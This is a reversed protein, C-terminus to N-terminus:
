CYDGNCWSWSVAFQVKILTLSIAITVMVARGLFLLCCQNTLPIAITVMVGRGLFVLSCQNTLPIAITVMVGRGLFVLSCQNTLPITITVMVGRGLFLLSCQNTLPIAITAMVGRYSLTANCVVCSCHVKENFSIRTKVLCDYLLIFLSCYTSPSLPAPPMTPWVQLNSGDKTCMIGM